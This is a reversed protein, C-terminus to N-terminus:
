RPRLQVNGKFSRIVIRSRGMGSTFGLEMGRGERGAVPRRPTLTNEITGTVTAADVEVDLKPALRLEIPGGHTDFDLTAARTLDGAFEIPGTVSTFRAREFRGGGVRV